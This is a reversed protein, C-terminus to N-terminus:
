KSWRKMTKLDVALKYGAAWPPADCMINQLVCVNQDALEIPSEIIISDYIHLVVELGERECAVLARYLLRACVAQMLNELILGGHINQGARKIQTRGYADAGITINRYYLAHGDPLIIKIDNDSGLPEFLFGAVASVRRSIAADDFANGLERWLKVIPANVVLWKDRLRESTAAGLHNIAATKKAGAGYGFGLVAIKSMIYENTGKKIKKGYLKEGFILYPSEGAEIRALQETDGAYFLSLYNEIGRWDSEILVSGAPACVVGRQLAPVPATSKEAEWDEVSQRSFNFFNVGWSQFRGTGAAHFVTANRVRGAYARDLIAQAKDGARATLLKRVYLVREIKEAQPHTSYELAELTPARADALEIDFEKQMYKTFESNSSLVLAGGATRGAIKEADVDAHAKDNEKRAVLFAAAEVDVPVGRIDIAQAARFEDVCFGRGNFVNFIFKSLRADLICYKIFDEADLSNADLKNFLGDKRPISYKSILHKGESMKQGAGVAM